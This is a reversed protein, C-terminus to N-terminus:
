GKDRARILLLPRDIRQLVAAAVSGYFVRSLGSRGHSAMAIMDVDMNQATSIISEAVPGQAVLFEADISAAAFDNRLTELYSEAERIIRELEERSREQMFAHPDIVPVFPNIVQLLVVKAANAQAIAKVHPLIREARKSGDLPVLIRKYM